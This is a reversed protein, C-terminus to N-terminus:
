WDLEPYDDPVTIWVSSEFTFLESMHTEATSGTMENTTLGTGDNSEDTSKDTGDNLEIVSDTNWYVDFIDRDTGGVIGGVNENGSVDGISYSFELDGKNEGVLGGVNRDGNVNSESYSQTILGGNNYGVFGGTRANNGEVEGISYSQEINGGNNYGVFGGINDSSENENLVIVESYSQGIDGENSNYGALGGINDNDGTVEGISYSETISARNDGVLGGTFGGESTVIIDSYSETISGGSHFGVLGGIAGGGGIINGETNSNTISGTNYGVIGGVHTNGNVNIDRLNINEVEGNNIFEFLGVYSESPRNINLNYINYGQGNLVGTFGDDYITSGESIFANGISNFGAGNNWNGTHSASIDNILIYNASTDENVAQLDSATKIEYPSSTSGDGDMLIDTINDGTSDSIDQLNINGEEDPTTDYGNITITNTEEVNYIGNSDTVDSDVFNGEEDFSEVLVGEAPPNFEIVGNMLLKTSIERSIIVEETGDELDAIITYTGDGDAITIDEGVESMTQEQGNPGIIRLSKANENRVTTVTVGDSSEQMNVSVDSSDSIDDGFQFVLVSALAVLGVTVAVLLIVGIVPSVAKKSPPSNIINLKRM